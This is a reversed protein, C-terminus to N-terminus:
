RDEDRCRFAVEIVEKMEPPIWPTDSLTERDQTADINAQAAECIAVSEADVARAVEGAATDWAARAEEVTEAELVIGAVDSEAATLRVIIDLAAAHLDAVEETPDLVRFSDLFSTRLEMRDTVYDRLVELSADDELAADAADLRENMSTVLTEVDHAYETLSPGSSCSAVVAGLVLVLVPIRRVPEFRGAITRVSDAASVGPM